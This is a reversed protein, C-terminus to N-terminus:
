WRRRDREALYDLMRRSAQELDAVGGVAIAAVEVSERDAVSVKVLRAAPGKGSAVLLVRLARRDAAACLELYSSSSVLPTM